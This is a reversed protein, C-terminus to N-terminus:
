VQPPPRSELSRPLVSLPPTVRSSGPVVQSYGGWAFEAFTLVALAWSASAVTPHLDGSHQARRLCTDTEAPSQMAMLDDSLSIVPLLLLVAMALSMIQTRRPAPNSRSGHLWAAILGLSCFAWAINLVIEM